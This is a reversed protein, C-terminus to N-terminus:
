ARAKRPDKAAARKATLKEIVLYVPSAIYISSYTGIVIGVILAFSFDRLIEGAFLYLSIVALLTTLSTIITRSLSQNISKNVIHVVDEKRSFELNERIRDFIVITDNISYGIITLIAAVIPVSLEKGTFSLVGLLIVVDHM